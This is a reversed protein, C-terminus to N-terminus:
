RYRKEVIVDPKQPWDNPQGWKVLKENIFYFWLRENVSRGGVGTWHNHQLELAEVVQGGITTQGRVALNPILQRVEAKSMGIHINDLQQSYQSNIPTYSLSYVDNSCGSTTLISAILGALGLIQKNAMAWRSNIAVGVDSRKM